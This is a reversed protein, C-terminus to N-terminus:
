YGSIIGYWNKDTDQKIDIGEVVFQSFPYPDNLYSPFTYVRTNVPINDYSNGYDQRYVGALSDPPGEQPKNLFSFFQGTDEMYTMFSPGTNPTAPITVNAIVTYNSAPTIMASQYTWQYTSAGTTNNIINVVSDTCVTDHLFSFNITQALSSHTSYFLILILFFYFKGSKKFQYSFMSSSQNWM